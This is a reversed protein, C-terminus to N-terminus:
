SRRKSCVKQEEYLLYSSDIEPTLKLRMALVSKPRAFIRSYKTELERFAEDQTMRVNEIVVIFPIRNILAFHWNNLEIRDTLLISAVSM